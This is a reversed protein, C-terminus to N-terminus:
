QLVNLEIELQRLAQHLAIEKTEASSYVTILDASLLDITAQWLKKKNVEQIYIVTTAADLVEIEIREHQFIARLLLSKTIRTITPHYIIMCTLQLLLGGKTRNKFM